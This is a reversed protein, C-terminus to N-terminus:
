VWTGSLEVLDNKGLLSCYVVSRFDPAAKMMCLESLRMAWRMLLSLILDDRCVSLVMEAQSADSFDRGGIGRPIESVLNSRDAMEKGM